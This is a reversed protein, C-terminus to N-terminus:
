PKKGANNLLESVRHWQGDALLVEEHYPPEDSTRYDQVGYGLRAMHASVLAGRDRLAQDPLPENTLPV